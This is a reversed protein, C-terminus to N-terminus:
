TVFEMVKWRMSRTKLGSVRNVTSLVLVNFQYVCVALLDGSALM